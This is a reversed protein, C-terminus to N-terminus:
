CIQQIVETQKRDDCNGEKEINEYRDVEEMREDSM